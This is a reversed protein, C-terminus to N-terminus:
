LAVIRAVGTPLRLEPLLRPRKTAAYTMPTEWCNIATDGGGDFPSRWAHERLARWWVSSSLSHTPRAYDLLHYLHSLM